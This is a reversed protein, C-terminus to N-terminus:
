ESLPRVARLSLFLVFCFFFVGNVSIDTRELVRRRAEGLNGMKRPNWRPVRCPVRYPALSPERFPERSPEEEPDLYTRHEWMRRGHTGAGVARGGRKGWGNSM